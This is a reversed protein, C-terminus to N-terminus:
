RGHNSQNLINSLSKGAKNLTAVSKTEKTKDWPFVVGKKDGGIARIPNAIM